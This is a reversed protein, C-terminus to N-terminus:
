RRAQATFLAWMVENAGRAQQRIGRERMAKAIELMDHRSCALMRLSVNGDGPKYLLPGVPQM